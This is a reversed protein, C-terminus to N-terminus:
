ILSLVSVPRPLTALVPVFHATWKRVGNKSVSWKKDRVNECAARRVTQRCTM